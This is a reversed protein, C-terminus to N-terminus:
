QTLREWAGSLVRWAKGLRVKSVLSRSVGLQRALAANTQDSSRIAVVAQETLKAEGSKVKAERLKLSLAPTVVRNKAMVKMHSVQGRWVTHAPSVCSSNGCSHGYNGAPQPQGSILERLLKRVSVMKKKGDPYAAVQPARNAIFGQWVWCDGQKVTMARLSEVTHYTRPKSM